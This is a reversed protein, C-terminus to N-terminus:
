YLMLHIVYIVNTQPNVNQVTTWASEVTYVMKTTVKQVNPLVPKTSTSSVKRESVADTHIVKSVSNVVKLVVNWVNTELQNVQYNVNYAITATNISTYVM